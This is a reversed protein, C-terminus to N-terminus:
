DSAAQGGLENSNAAAGGEPLFATPPEGGLESANLKTV